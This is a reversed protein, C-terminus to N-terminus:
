PLSRSPSSFLLFQRRGRGVLGTKTGQEMSRVSASQTATARLGHCTLFQLLPLQYPPGFAWGPFWSVLNSNLWSVRCHESHESLGWSM